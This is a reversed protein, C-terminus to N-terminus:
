GGFVAGLGRRRRPTVKPADDPDSPASSVDDVVPAAPAGADVTAGAADAPETDAETAQTGPDASITGGTPVETENEPQKTETEVPKTESRAESPTMFGASTMVQVPAPPPAPPDVKLPKRRRFYGIWEAGTAQDLLIADESELKFGARDMVQVINQPVNNSRIDKIVHGTPPLRIVCLDNARAALAACVKAPERLKHLVALMLVVDSQPLKSCDFENLNATIWECPMGESLQQAFVIHGPVIELGVTSAAGARVLAMSILGEACGIDLVTKGHVERVLKELGRMQQELSRDGDRHGAKDHNIVFWGMAARMKSPSVM